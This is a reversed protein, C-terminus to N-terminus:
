FRMYIGCEPCFTGNHTINFLQNGCNCAYAYSEPPVFPFRWRGKMAKCSPCEFETTGVPVVAAWVHDCGSCYAEGTGHPETKAFPIVQASM